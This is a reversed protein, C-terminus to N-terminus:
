LAKSDDLNMIKENDSKNVYHFSFISLEKKNKILRVSPHNEYKAIVKLLLISIDSSDITQNEYQLIGSNKVVDSFFTNWTDSFVKVTRNLQEM